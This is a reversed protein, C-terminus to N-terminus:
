LSKPNNIVIQYRPHVKKWQEAYTLCNLTGGPTGDFIGSLIHSNQVMWHNRDDMKAPHYVGNPLDMFEKFTVWRAIDVMYIGTAFKLLGLYREKSANLWRKDQGKFPIAAFLPLGASLTADAGVMDTGLALGSITADVEYEQFQTRFLDWIKESKSGSKPSSHYENPGIKDPRHGTFAMVQRYEQLKNDM